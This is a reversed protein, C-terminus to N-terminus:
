YVAVFNGPITKTWKHGGDTSQYLGQNTALYVYKQHTGNKYINEKFAINRVVINTGLGNNKQQQFAGTNTNLEYLGASDTGILCIEEFPSAICLLPVNPLGAYQTWNKGTDNSYYAGGGNCNRNDIAILTNNFHGYSYWAIGVGTDIPSSPGDLLDHYPLHNGSHNVPSGIYPAIDSDPNATVENWLTTKTRYFNRNHVADYGCLVGAKLLTYSTMNITYPEAGYAGANGLTDLLDTWWTGQTGSYLSYVVGLYNESTSPYNACTFIMNWDPINIMMSQNLNLALGNCTIFPFSTLSDYSHNFNVGNNTSYYLNTKAWLINDHAVCIARCPFGDGKFLTRQITKGDNSNYLAGSTDSFFLSYPTEIVQDNNIGNVKKTCSYLSIFIALFLAITVYLSSKRM